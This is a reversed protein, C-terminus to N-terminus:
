PRIAVVCPEDLLPRGGPRDLLNLGLTFERPKGPAAAPLDAAPLFLRARGSLEGQATVTSGDPRKVPRRTAGDLLTVVVGGSKLSLQVDYVDLQLGAKPGATWEPRLRVSHATPTDGEEAPRRRLLLLEETSRVDAPEGFAPSYALGRLRFERWKGDALGPLRDYPFFFTYNKAGTRETDPKLSVSVITPREAGHAMGLALEVARGRSQEVNVAVTLKLGAKGDRVVNHEVAGPAAFTVVQYPPPLRRGWRALLNQTAPGPV